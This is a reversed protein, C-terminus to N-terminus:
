FLKDLGGLYMAQGKYDTPIPLGKKDYRIVRGDPLEALTRIGNKNYSVTKVVKDQADYFTKLFRGNDFREVTRSGALKKGNFLKDIVKKFISLGDKEDYEYSDVTRTKLRKGAFDHAAETVIKTTDGSYGSDVFFTRSVQKYGNETAQTIRTYKNSGLRGSILEKGNLLQKTGFFHADCRRSDSKICKAMNAGLQIGQKISVM